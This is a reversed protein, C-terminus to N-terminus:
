SGELTSLDGQCVCFENGDPDAMVIWSDGTPGSLPRGSLRTAGLEILRAAEHEIDDVFLDLHMRNKGRKPEPVQQLVLEPSRDNPDTLTLYPPHFPNARYHLAQAWFPALGKPDNCDLTVVYSFRLPSM